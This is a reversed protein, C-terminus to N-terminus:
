PRVHVIVLIARAPFARPFFVGRYLRPLRDRRGLAAGAFPGYSQGVGWGMPASFVGGGWVLSSDLNYYGLIRALNGSVIGWFHNGPAFRDRSSLCFAPQM